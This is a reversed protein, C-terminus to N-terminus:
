ETLAGVDEQAQHGLGSEGPLDESSGQSVSVLQDTSEPTPIQGTQHPQRLRGHSAQGVEGGSCEEECGAIGVDCHGLM